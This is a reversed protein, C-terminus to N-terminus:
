LGKVVKFSKVWGSCQGIKVLSKFIKFNGFPTIVGAGKANDRFDTSLLNRERKGSKKLFNAIENLLSGLFNDEDGLVGGSITNVEGAFRLKKFEKFLNFFDGSIETITHQVQIRIQKGEM